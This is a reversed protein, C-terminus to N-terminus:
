VEEKLTANEKRIIEYIVKLDREEISRISINKKRIM